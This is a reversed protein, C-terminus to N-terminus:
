DVFLMTKDTVTCIYMSKCKPADTTGRRRMRTNERPGEPLMVM